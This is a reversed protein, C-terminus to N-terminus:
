VLYWGTNDSAFTLAQGVTSIVFPAAAGEIQQSSTTGVNVANTMGPKLKVTYTQAAAVATPLTITITGSTTDALIGSDTGAILTYNATKTALAFTSSGGGGGAGNTAYVQWNAGDSFFVYIAHLAPTLPPAAGDITQASTTTITVAHTINIAKVAILKTFGVATPLTIAVTNASGDADIVDDDYVATYNATVHRAQIQTLQRLQDQLTAPPVTYTGTAVSTDASIGTQDIVVGGNSVVMTINWVIPEGPWVIWYTANPPTHGTTTAICQYYIGGSLVVDAPSAKTGANPNYTTGGAYAGQYGTPHVPATFYWITGDPFRISYATTTPNLLSTPWLPIVGDGGSDTVVPVSQSADLTTGNPAIATQSIGLQLSAGQRAANSVLRLDVLMPLMGAASVAIPYWTSVTISSAYAYTLPSLTPVGGEVVVLQCPTTLPNGSGDLLDGTYVATESYVGSSNTVTTEGFQQGNFLVGGELDTVPLESPTLLYVSIPVGVRPTTDLNLLTNTLVHTRTSM